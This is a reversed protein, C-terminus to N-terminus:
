RSTAMTHSARRSRTAREALLPTVVAMWGEAFSREDRPRRDPVYRSMAACLAEVLADPAPHTAIAVDLAAELAALKGQLYTPDDM